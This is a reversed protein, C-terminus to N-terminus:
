YLQLLVVLHIGKCTYGKSLFTFTTNSHDYNFIFGRSSRQLSNSRVFYISIYISVM